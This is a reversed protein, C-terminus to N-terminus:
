WEMKFQYPMEDMEEIYVETRPNQKDYLVRSGDTGVIIRCNDDLIIHHKVLVDHLAEHLNTLDVRRRTPMYYLAKINVPYDIPTRVMPMFNWAEHEYEIYQKSPIPIIRGKAQIMRQSNKKTIPALHITFSIPEHLVM